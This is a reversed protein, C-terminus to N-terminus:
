TTRRPRAPSRARRRAKAAAVAEVSEARRSTSSTSAGTRTARRARRRPRGDDVRLDVPDRRAGLLASVAGEHMSATARSRRTRRTCRSRRRRVAAPVPARPAAHRRQRGAPRRRHLRARRRRAARGDRDAGRRAPGRTIAAIFGVPVRAERARASACRACCRRPTSRGADTNPMAVIACYGGAAAARTGTELDEKHEQGPTRLHVHPDVFAPFRTCAARRRGGRRGRARDLSGPAGIEAIEGDRVLVDHPATSARRAPRARARRPDPADAPPPAAHPRAARVSM